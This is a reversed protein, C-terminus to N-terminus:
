LSLIALAGMLLEVGLALALPLGIAVLIVLLVADWLSPNRHHRGVRFM